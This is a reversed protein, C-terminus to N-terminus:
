GARGPHPHRQERVDLEAPFRRDRRQRSLCVASAAASARLGSRRAGRPGRGRLVVGGDGGDALLGGVGGETPISGHGAAPSDGAGGTRARNRGAREARATAPPWPSTGDIARQLGQTAPTKGDGVAGFRTVEFLGPTETAPGAAAGMWAAAILSRREFSSMDPRAEGPCM